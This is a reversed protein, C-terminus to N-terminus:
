DARIRSLFFDKNIPFLTENNVPELVVYPPTGARATQPIGLIGRAMKDIVAVIDPSEVGTGAVFGQDDAKMHTVSVGSPNKVGSSACGGALAIVTITFLCKTLKAILPKM